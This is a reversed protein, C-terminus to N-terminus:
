LQWLLTGCVSHSLCCVTIKEWDQLSSMKSGPTPLAPEERPRQGQGGEEAEGCVAGGRDTGVLNDRHTQM